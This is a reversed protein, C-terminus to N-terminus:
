SGAKWVEDAGTESFSASRGSVVGSSCGLGCISRTKTKTFSRTASADACVLCRGLWTTYRGHGLAIGRLHVGAMWPDAFCARRLEQVTQLVAGSRGAVPLVHGLGGDHLDVHRRQEFTKFWTYLDEQSHQAIRALSGTM